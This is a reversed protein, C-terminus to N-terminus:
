VRGATPTAEQLRKATAARRNDGEGIVHELPISRRGGLSAFTYYIIKADLWLSINRVYTVDYHIWQHFDGADRDHRCIQWLGTIGPRVSLRAKRWPACVQNERFPSPRPGVLSMQGVLVNWLQPLEDINTKRLIGGIRTVRPDNTIIFQRGDSENQDAMAKQLQHAGVRMTRFKLCGFERGDKGERQHSFFLPGPSTLKVLVATVILVPCLLVLGAFAVGVDIARKAIMTMRRRQQLSADARKGGKVIDFEDSLSSPEPAVPQPREDHTLQDPVGAFVVGHVDGGPKVITRDLIVSNAVTAGHGVTAGCGIVAPGIITAGDAVHADVNVMVDGLLRASEAVTASSAVVTGMAPGTHRSTLGHGDKSKRSTSTSCAVRLLDADCGLDYAASAAPLDRLPVGVEALRRRLASLPFQLGRSALGYPIVCCSVISANCHSWVMRDFVRQIKCVNGATDLVVHEVRGDPQQGAHAVFVAGYHELHRELATAFDPGAIPWYRPDVVILSDSSEGDLLQESRQEPLVIDLQAGAAIGTLRRCYTDDPEFAPVIKIDCCDVGALADVVDNLLHREGVPLALVSQLETGGRFSDPQFDHVIAQIAM